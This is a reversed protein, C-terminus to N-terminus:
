LRSIESLVLIPIISDLSRVVFVSILSHPHATQFAGKNNAYAMFCTKKKMVHSM